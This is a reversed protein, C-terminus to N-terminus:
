SSKMQPIDSFQIMGFLIVLHQQLLWEPCRNKKVKQIIIPFYCHFLDDIVSFFNSIEVITISM